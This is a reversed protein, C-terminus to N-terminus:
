ADGGPHEDMWQSVDYVKHDIVLWLDGPSTHQQIEEWTFTQPMRTKRRKAMGTPRAMSAAVLPAEAADGGTTYACPASRYMGVAIPGHAAHMTRLPTCLCALPKQLGRVM